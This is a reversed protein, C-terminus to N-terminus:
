PNPDAPEVQIGAKVALNRVMRGIRSVEKAVPQVGYGPWGQMMATHLETLMKSEEPTLDPAEPQSAPTFARALDTENLIRNADVAGTIGPVNAGGWQWLACPFMPKEARYRATWRVFPAFDYSWDNGYRIAVRDFAQGAVACIARQDGYTGATAGECDLAVGEGNRLVGVTARFHRVQDGTDQNSRFHYACLWPAGPVGRPNPVLRRLDSWNAHFEPDVYGTGESAKVAIFRIRPDAVVQQWDPRSSSPGDQYRSCDVGDLKRDDTM